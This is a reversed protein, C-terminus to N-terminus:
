KSSLSRQRIRTPQLLEIDLVTRKTDTPTVPETDSTRLLFIMTGFSLSISVKKQLKKGLTEPFM